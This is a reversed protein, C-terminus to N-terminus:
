TVLGVPFLVQFDWTRSSNNESHILLLVGMNFLSVSPYVYMSFLCFVRFHLIWLLGYGLWGLVAMHFSGRPGWGNDPCSLVPGSGKRIEKQARCLKSCGSFTSVRILFYGSLLHKGKFLLLHNARWIDTVRHISLPIYIVLVYMFSMFVSCVSVAPCLDCIDKPVALKNVLQLDSSTLSFM